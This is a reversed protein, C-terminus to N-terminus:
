NLFLHRATRFVSEYFSGALADDRLFQVPLTPSGVFPRLMWSLQSGLFLNGALWAFLVRWAARSGGLRRLLQLLRVNSAIGAFAITGVILLLLFGHSTQASDHLELPPTNWVVFALLPSAAGLITGAITFSMLVAALSQRFSMNVGLLPALMANLLANGLTTLLIVLPFKIATYLAQEPARWWGMAAGFLASGFVVVALWTAMLRRGSHETWHSVSEVEGRLLPPVRTLQNWIVTM